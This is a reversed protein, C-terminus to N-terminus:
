ASTDGQRRWVPNPHWQPQWFKGKGDKGDHKGKYGKGLESGKFTEAHKGKEGKPNERLRPQKTPTGGTSSADSNPRRRGSPEWAPGKMMHEQFSAVDAMVLESAETFTKKARLYGCLKWSASEFYARFQEVKNNRARAKLTMYEFYRRVQKEPGMEVLIYLWKIARLGDLVSMLGRPVWDDDKDEEERLLGDEVSLKNSRPKRSLPNVERNAQFSRRSLVEGLGVPQYLKSVKHEHLVRAVVSEAGLLEHEPFERTEGALTVNCYREILRTWEGSPLAKPVKTDAATAGPSASTGATTAPSTGGQSAAAQKARTERALQYMFVLVASAIPRETADLLIEETDPSRRWGQLLPQCIVEKFSEQDNAVLALAGVSRIGREDLYRTVEPGAGATRALDALSPEAVPPAAVPLVGTMAGSFHPSVRIVHFRVLFVVVSQCSM